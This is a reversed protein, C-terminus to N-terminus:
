FITARVGIRAKVYVTIAVRFVVVSALTAIAAGDIGYVPILVANLIINLVVAAGLFMASQNQHGTMTMLNGAAGSLATIAQSGALVLLAVYGAVFESGFLGLIWKGFFLLVMFAVLMVATALRAVLTVMSQLESKRNTHFLEAIMPAAIPNVVMMGFNVVNTVSTAAGYVGAEDPGDIAGLMLVDVRALLVQMGQLFVLPLSIKWWDHSQVRRDARHVGAPLGRLLWMSGLAFAVAYSVFLISMTSPANLKMGAVWALGLAALMFSPNLIMEPFDAKAVLRLGRLAGQRLMGLSMVPLVLFAVLLTMDQVSPKDGSRYWVVAAAIAATVLSVALTNRMAWYLVGRLLGWQAQARYQAVLRTLGLDMGLRSVMALVVLWSMAIVFVGYETVGLMRVLALQMVLGLLASISRVVLVALSGRAIVVNVSEGHLLRGLFMM